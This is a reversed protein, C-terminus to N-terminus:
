SSWERVNFSKWATLEKGQLSPSPVDLLVGLLGVSINWAKLFTEFIIIFHLLVM